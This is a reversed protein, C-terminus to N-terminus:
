FSRLLQLLAKTDLFPVISVLFAVAFVAVLTTSWPLSAAILIAFVDSTTSRVRPDRWSTWGPAAISEKAFVSM